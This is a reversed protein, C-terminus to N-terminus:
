ASAPRVDDAIAVSGAAARSYFERLHKYCVVHFLAEDARHFGTKGLHALVRALVQRHDPGGDLLFFRVVRALAERMSWLQGWQTGGPEPRQGLELSTLLRDVFADPEYLEACFRRFGDVLEDMSMQAPRVNTVPLSDLSGAQGAVYGNRLPILRDERVVQDYYSTGPVAQLLGPIVMGIGAERAFELYRGFVEPTDRDFGGLLAAWVTINHRQIERVADAVSMKTNHHKNVGRLADLDNSEIGIFLRRFNAEYLLELLEPRRAVDITAQCYFIPRHDHARVYDRLRHLLEVAHKRDGLFHDDIFFISQHGLRHLLRVEEMVLHAPKTRPRPGDLLPVDCYDCAFPCGRSTQISGTSYRHMQLLDYRPLRSQSMDFRESARYSPKVEGRELDAIFEPWTLEAEGHFVVDAERRCADPLGHVIGGGILVRKGRARLQRALEFARERQIYMASIGVTPALRDLDLAEVNEDFIRVEVGAPTYAALTAVGVPPHSYASGEMDMAFAFNWHAPPFEPVVLDIQM